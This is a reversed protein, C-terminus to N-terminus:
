AKLSTSNRLVLKCPFQTQVDSYDQKQMHLILKQVAHKAIEAIPQKVTTISPWIQQSVPADDYGVVSLDSPVNIKMQAAVKLVAAAMYDNCAFIATPKHEQTLLQRACVEGSEFTFEGQKVLDDSVQMGMEKLARQYGEFRKPTAGFDQHGKIIAIDTHGLSILFNTIDFAAQEDDSCVFPSDHERNFPSIRAFPIKNDELLKILEQNDCLPHTLLMGDQRAHNIMTEINEILNPQNHDCPQIQLNYGQANAQEIAGNQLELVYGPNPNSYLLTIIFSRQGRLASALPNKKFGLEDVAKKVLEQMAPRVNPENNIVRSVTKVSVGALKAVDKITARM